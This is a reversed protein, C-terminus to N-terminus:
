EKEKNPIQSILKDRKFKHMWNPMYWNWKDLLTMTSPVLITRIIFADVFIAVAIGLGFEKVILVDAILFSGCLCIVILAASSIIKSSKIIGFIISQTNDKTRLYYEQIRTLLFVEYDMSFGFLACFIILMLSIDLMGQAHFNLLHNFHGDQFIFVLVGYSSCLSLTNMLLAKVPLFLSQLLIMLILYTLIIIWSITYFAHHRISDFVDVQNVPTGTLSITLHHKLHTNRLKTILKKTQISDDDYRGIVTIVTVPEKTAIIASQKVLHNHQLKNNFRQIIKQNKSSLIHNNKDTIVVTIPTLEHIDFSKKYANYFQWSDSHRPLAHEDAMGIKIHLLPSSITLLIVLSAIFFIVPHNTVIIALQHWINWRDPKLLRQNTRKAKFFALRNIGNKIVSLLAPLLTIAIIVAILVACLGGVGVSFLINIPFFLLASLSIFVALGSFFIAKGATALTRAIVYEIPHGAKLEERFRYIIFLAYDLSLCLGLLLAINLTFISLDVLSGICYLLTMIIIACGGGLCIPLIAAIVTGFVLILVVISLPIALADSKYLDKQTQQNVDEVFVAEGGIFIKMNHPTTILSRIKIFLNHSMPKKQNLIVVAYANHDDKSIQQNYANPLIITPPTKLDLLASLSKEIAKLSKESKASQHPMKYMVVLRNYNYGFKKDLLQRTLNSESNNTVFGTSQFPEMLHPMFPLCACILLIWAVIIFWRAKYVWKGCKFFLRDEM